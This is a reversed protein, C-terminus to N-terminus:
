SGWVIVFLEPFPRLDEHLFPRDNNHSPRDSRRDSIYTDLKRKEKWDNLEIADLMKM